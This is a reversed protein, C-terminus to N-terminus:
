CTLAVITLQWYYVTCDTSHMQIIFTTQTLLYTYLLCSLESFFDVSYLDNTALMGSLWKDIQRRLVATSAALCATCLQLICATYSHAAAQCAMTSTSTLSCNALATSAASANQISRDKCTTSRTYLRQTHTHTHPQRTTGSCAM